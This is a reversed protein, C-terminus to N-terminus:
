KFASRKLLTLINAKVLTAGKFTVLNQIRQVFFVMNRYYINKKVLIVKSESHAKTDLYFDFYDLNSQNWRNIAKSQLDALPLAKSFANSNLPSISSFSDRLLLLKEIIEQLALM